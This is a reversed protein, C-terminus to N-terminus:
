LDDDGYNQYHTYSVQPLAMTSKKGRFTQSTSGQTHSPEQLNVYLPNETPKRNGTPYPNSFGTPTYTKGGIEKVAYNINEYHSAPSAQALMNRMKSHKLRSGMEEEEELRLKKSNPNEGWKEAFNDLSSYESTSQTSSQSSNLFKKINEPLNQLNFHTEVNTNTGYINQGNNIYYKSIEYATLGNKLSLLFKLLTERTKTKFLFM